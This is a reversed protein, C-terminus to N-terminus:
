KKKKKKKFLLLFVKLDDPGLTEDFFSYNEVRIFCGDAYVRGGTSPFCSPLLTKMHNFCIKCEEGSLDAMCQAFVHLRDPPEGVENFSFKNRVMEEEMTKVIKSYSNVYISSNQVKSHRCSRAVVDDRPDAHIIWFLVLFIVCWFCAAM